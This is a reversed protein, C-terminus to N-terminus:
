NNETRYYSCRDVLEDNADNPEDRSKPFVVADPLHPAHYTFFTRSHRELEEGDTRLRDEPVISKLGALLDM